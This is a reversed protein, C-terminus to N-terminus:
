FMSSLFYQGLNLYRRCVFFVLELIQIVKGLSISFIFKMLILLDFMIQYLTFLIKLLFEIIQILKLYYKM